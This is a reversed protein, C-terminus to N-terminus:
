CITQFSICPWWILQEPKKNMDMYFLSGTNKTCLQFDRHSDFTTRLTLCTAWWVAILFRNTTHILKLYISFFCCLPHLTTYRSGFASIIYWTFSTLYSIYLLYLCGTENWYTCIHFRPRPGLRVGCLLILHYFIDVNHPHLTYNM